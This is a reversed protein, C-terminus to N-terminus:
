FPAKPQRQFKNSIDGALAVDDPDIMLTPAGPSLDFKSLDAWVVNPANSLEFYYRTEKLNMATRYETNYIGFQAYPAGFPVSANRAIAMVGSIAERESKPEPLMELFYAARQFRDTAKVNGPLPTDSSPKSFDKGALLALQQDFPPDNTMVRYQRGHHVTRKGNVWEVVASDGSADALALHLSAKHGRAAGMVVQVEELVKLAEPVTSALDLVYQLMLASQVGPKSPDRPGFDTASLFLAHGGLGKENLGDMTGIGYASVIMSGHASKWQAPLGAVQRDNGVLGGDRAIGRPFVYLKPETSEPWDMTRSVFVGLKSDNSLVRTCAEAALPLFHGIALACSMSLSAFKRVM